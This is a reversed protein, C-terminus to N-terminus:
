YQASSIVAHNYLVTSHCLDKPSLLHCILSLSLTHCQELYIYKINTKYKCLLFIYSSLPSATITSRRRKGSDWMDRQYSTSCPSFNFHIVFFEIFSLLLISFYIASWSWLSFNFSGIIYLKCFLHFLPHFYKYYLVISTMSNNQITFSLLSYSPCQFPFIVKSLLPLFIVQWCCPQHSLPVHVLFSRLSWM